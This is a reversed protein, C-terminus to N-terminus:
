DIKRFSLKCMVFSRALPKSCGSPFLQNGVSVYLHTTCTQDITSSDDDTSYFRTQRSSSVCVIRNTSIDWQYSKNKKENRENSKAKVSKVCLCISKKKRNTLAIRDDSMFEYLLLYDFFDGRIDGTSSSTSGNYESM